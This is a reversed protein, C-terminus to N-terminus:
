ENLILIRTQTGKFTTIKVLYQGVVLGELNFSLKHSNASFIKQLIGIQNFIEVKDIIVPSEITIFKQAPNPYMNISINTTEQIGNILGTSDIITILITDNTIVQITDYKEIRITDYVNIFKEIEITDYKIVSITDNTIVHITDYKIIRITDYVNITKYIISTCPSFLSDVIFKSYASDVQNYYEFNNGANDGIYVAKVYWDGQVAWESIKVKKLYNGNGLNKWDSIILGFATHGQEGIPNVIDVQIREVGSVNDVTNVIVSISDGNSVIKPSISLNNLSPPTIDPTSSNVTFKSYASDVQNYYEFNNGANDTINVAKVYWNGSVAWDTLKIKKLFSGSGLNKWDSILGFATHGQKGQPNVVDVQIREIGSVNDTVNVTIGISDGNNVIQPTISLDNLVPPTVDPTASNVTFKSYASDVQNYYEFNNGANDTINVAKVYWIGSVAWDTLKIKKLYNGSGQNKWDSILGFATHGQKGQPNVVDIQIREIGSIDDTANVTISISDGNNVVKPDVSLSNLVPPNTDAQGYISGGVILSAVFLLYFKTRM